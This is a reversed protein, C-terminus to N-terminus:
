TAQPFIDTAYTPRPCRPAPLSRPSDPLEEVRCQYLVNSQLSM